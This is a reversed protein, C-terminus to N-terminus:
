QAHDELSAEFFPFTEKTGPDQVRQSSACVEMVLSLHWLPLFWIKKTWQM